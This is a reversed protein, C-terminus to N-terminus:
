CAYMGKPGYTQLARTEVPRAHKLLAGAFTINGVANYMCEQACMVYLRGFGLKLLIYSYTEWCVRMCVHMIMYMCMCVCVCVYLYVYVYVCMCVCMCVYVCVCMCVYM